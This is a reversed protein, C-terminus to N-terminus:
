GTLTNLKKIEEKMDDYERLADNVLVFEDHNICLNILDKSTLIKMSNLKSKALLLIEDHKKKKQNKM